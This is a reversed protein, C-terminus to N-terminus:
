QWLPVQMQPSGGRRLKLVGAGGELIGGQLPPDHLHASLVPSLDLSKTREENKWISRKIYKKKTFSFPDHRPFGLLPSVGARGGWGGRKNKLDRTSLSVWYNLKIIVTKM